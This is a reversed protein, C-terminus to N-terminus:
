LIDVTYAYSAEGKVGTDLEGRCMGCIVLQCLLTLGIRIIKWYVHLLATAFGSFLICVESVGTEPM